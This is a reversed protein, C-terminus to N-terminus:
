KASSTCWIPLMCNFAHGHPFFISFFVFLFFLCQSFFPLKTMKWLQTQTASFSIAKKKKRNLTLGISVRIICKFTSCCYVDSREPVRKMNADWLYSPRAWIAKIPVSLLQRERQSHCLIFSCISITQETARSFYSMRPFIPDQCQRWFCIVTLSFILTFAELLTM